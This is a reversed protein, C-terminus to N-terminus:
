KKKFEPVVEGYFALKKGNVVNEAFPKFCISSLSYPKGIGSMFADEDPKLDKQKFLSIIEEKTPVYGHVGMLPLYLRIVNYSEPFEEHDLTYFYKDVNDKNKQNKKILDVVITEGKIELEIDNIKEPLENIKDINMKQKQKKDM